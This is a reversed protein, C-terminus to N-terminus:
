KYSPVLAGFKMTIFLELQCRFAPQGIPGPDESLRRFAAWESDKQRLWVQKLSALQCSMLRFTLHPLDNYPVAHKRSYLRDFIKHDLSM